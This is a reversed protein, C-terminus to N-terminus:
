TAPNVQTAPKSFVRPQPMAKNGSETKDMALEGALIIQDEKEDSEVIIEEKKNESKHKNVEIDAVMKAQIEELKFQHQMQLKQMELEAAMQTSQMQQEANAQAAAMAEEAKEKQYQKRRLVMLQAASKPNERGARRIMIADEVRLNGAALEQQINAELMQKEEEDPKLQIMIGFEALAIDKTLEIMKVSEEGISQYWGKMQYGSSVSDQVMHVVRRTSRLIISHYAEKIPRLSHNTANAAMKQIGVLADKDPSSADVAENIGTVGRIADVYFNHAHMLKEFDRSMGNQLEQVPNTNYIPEGDERRSSFYYVGTAEYLRHLDRPTMKAGGQGMGKMVGSIGSMDVALGPPRAKAILHQLKLHTIQLMDAYPIMREVHSKNEGDLINPAYITYRTTAKTSLGEGEKERVMDKVLNWKVMYSTGVVWMGEYVVQVSRQTVEEGNKAKYKDSVKDYYFSGYKNKKKVYKYTHTTIVDIEVVDVKFPDYQYDNGSSSVSGKYYSQEYATHHNGNRGAYSKAIEYFQDETIHEQTMTKIDAITYKKQEGFHTIDRFDPYNSHPIIAMVPDVYERKINHDEDYYEKVAAFKLVLLDRIVRRLTEGYINKYNVWEIAEEMSIETALKVNMQNYLEAEESTEPVYEGEPIVSLGFNEKLEQDMQKLDMNVLTRIRQKDKETMSAPDVATCRVKYELNMLIGIMVDLYKPVVSVSQWDLNLHSRDGPTELLQKYKSTSQLGEAYKRNKKWQGNRNDHSFPYTGNRHNNYAARTFKLGWMPNDKESNSVEHSPFDLDTSKPDSSVQFPNAM